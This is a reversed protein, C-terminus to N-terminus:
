RLEITAFLLTAQVHKFAVTTFHIGEGGGAEQRRVRRSVYNWRLSADHVVLDRTLDAQGLQPLVPEIHVRQAAVVDVDRFIQPPHSQVASMLTKEYSISYGEKGAKNDM